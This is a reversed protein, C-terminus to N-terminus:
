RQESVNANMGDLVLGPAVSRQIGLGLPRDSSALLRLLAQFIGGSFPVQMVENIHLPGTRTTEARCTRRLLFGVALEFLGPFM